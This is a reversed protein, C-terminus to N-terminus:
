GGDVTVADSWAQGFQARDYGTRPARGKVPLSDLAGRAPSSAGASTSAPSPSTASPASDPRAATATETVPAPTVTVPAATVTEPVTATSTPEVPATCAAGVTGAVLLAVAARLRSPMAAGYGPAGVGGDAPRGAVGQG